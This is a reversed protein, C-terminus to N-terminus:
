MSRTNKKVAIRRTALDRQAQLVPGSGGAGAAHIRRFKDFEAMQARVLRAADEVRIALVEERGPILLTSGARILNINDRIFADRNLRHLGIMMQQM